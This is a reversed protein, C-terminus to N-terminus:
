ARRHDGHGRHRDAQGFGPRRHDPRRAAPGHRARRGPPHDDPAAYPLYGAVTTTDVTTAVADFGAELPRRRRPARDPRDGARVAQHDGHRAGPRSRADGGAMNIGAVRGHKNAYTGLAIHVPEGTVLHTSTACDGASWVGGASSTGPPRRRARRRWGGARHRGRRGAGLAAACRHRPHRPRGRDARGLHARGGPEFGDVAVGCRVDIGHSRMADAVRTASTSTSRRRAAAAGREVVTATCGREIYAEAMELGIYGGGVIVIRRCGEDALSLLAQPTTSRSCATSSRCTSARCTPGSRRAAPPSAAARRLRPPRGRRRAPRPVRGRRRRPRHGDGRPATRM